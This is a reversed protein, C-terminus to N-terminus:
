VKGELLYTILGYTNKNKEIYSEYFSNLSDFEEDSLFLTVDGFKLLNRMEKTIESSHREVEITENPMEIQILDLHKLNLSEYINPSTLAIEELMLSAEITWDGQITESNAAINAAKEKEIEWDVFRVRFIKKGPAEIFGEEENLPVIVLDGYKAKLAKVRQHGAVLNGTQRNFVIGSIDGFEDLSFKLGELAAESITRPNYEAEKLESLLMGNGM